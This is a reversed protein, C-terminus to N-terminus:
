AMGDPRRPGKWGPRGPQRPKRLSTANVAVGFGVPLVKGDLEPAAPLYVRRNITAVRNRAIRSPSSIAHSVRWRSPMAMAAEDRWRRVAGPQAARGQAGQPARRDGPRRDLRDVNLEAVQTENVTVTLKYRDEAGQARGYTRRWPPWRRGRPRTPSGAPAPATPWIALRRGRRARAAQPRVRAYALAVLATTEAAGRIAQSRGSHSWYVRSPRGPATAETKARPGLIGILEGALSARDLNAFTLALYALAPDSLGTRVRNLSNAAEFGAARRTSLAHLLAARTEHDNGSTRAFEQQLYAVAHDLVKVDTLLGLPEATALAWVVAASPLRDSAAAPANPAPRPLPDGSVWSWGGDQNQAAILSGVLGQIRNTLREAEPAAAARATRLYQLAATAALLDAARDATTDCPPWIRRHSNSSLVNSVPYAEDGLALEILM